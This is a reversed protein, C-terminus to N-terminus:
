VSVKLGPINSKLEAFIHLALWPHLVLPTGSLHLVDLKVLSNLAQLDSVQTNDLFLKELNVLGTLPQLDAVRTNRLTFWKLKVLLRLPTLDKVQTSALNLNELEFLRSLPTIDTVPTRELFLTKLNVLGSLPKLDKVQTGDLDLVKLKVLGSLPTIDTIQKDSLNLKEMEAVFIVSRVVVKIEPSELVNYASLVDERNGVIFELHIKKQKGEAKKVIEKITEVNSWMVKPLRLTLVAYQRRKALISDVEGVTMVELQLHLQTNKNDIRGNLFDNLSDPNEIYQKSLVPDLKFQKYDCVHHSVGQGLINSVSRLSRLDKDPLHKMIHYQSSRKLVMKTLADAPAAALSSQSFVGLVAILLKPMLYFHFCSL